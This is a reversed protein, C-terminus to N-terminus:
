VMPPYPITCELTETPPNLKLGLIQLSIRGLQPTPTDTAALMAPGERGMLRIRGLGVPIQISNNDAAAITLAASLELGLRQALEPSIATYTSGTDVLFEVPRLEGTPSGIEATVTIM